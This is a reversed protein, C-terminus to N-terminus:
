PMFKYGMRNITLLHTPNGPDNELKQRLRLIHNDVTRTCPYNKYGWVENLLEERSIARRANKIMFELTRFEKMTLPIEMHGRIVEMKLFDVMVDGFIYLIEPTFQFTRRRLAHLRAVLEKPSFPVAIYDDAGMELFLVKDVTSPSATLVVFPIAPVAQMLQRCLDWAPPGPVQLDVILGSPTKQRVWELGTTGNSVLEVEYGEAALARQIISQLGKDHEIVLIREERTRQLGATRTGVAPTMTTAM